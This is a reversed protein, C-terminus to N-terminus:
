TPQEVWRNHQFIELPQYNSKYSMKQCEKIWYGLYLYHLGLRRTEEILLLVSLTGLSRKQEQPDFFTYIASLSDNLQDVVSVAFLKDRNHYEYFVAEPRGNVLFSEFQDMTAPFMDGDAHRQTIYREYLEFYTPDLRPLQQTISIDANKKLIRKQSRSFTFRAVPVRAPNCANCDDCYPKYIHQGSRRFGVRSLSTYADTDIIADPDAFLTTAQRNELYSCDHAPTTFFKLESLSTLIIRPLYGNNCVTKNRSTQEANLQTLCM